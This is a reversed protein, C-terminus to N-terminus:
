DRFYKEAIAENSAAITAISDCYRDYLDSSLEPDSEIVLMSALYFAAPVILEDCLPFSEMISIYVPSFAPAPDLGKAKRLEKDLNKATNCFSALIYPARAEYDTSGQPDGLDGIYSLSANYIEATSHNM